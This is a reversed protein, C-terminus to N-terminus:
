QWTFFSDHLATPSTCANFVVQRIHWMTHHAQALCLFDDCRWRWQWWASPFLGKAHPPRWHPEHSCYLDVDERALWCVYIYSLCVSVWLSKRHAFNRAMNIKSFWRGLCEILLRVYRLYAYCKEFSWWHTGNDWVICSALALTPM